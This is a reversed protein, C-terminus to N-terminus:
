REPSVSRFYTGHICSAPCGVHWLCDSHLVTHRADEFMRRWPLTNLICLLYSDLLSFYRHAAANLMTWRLIISLFIVRSTSTSFSYLCLTVKMRVYMRQKHMMVVRSIKSSINRQYVQECYTDNMQLVTYVILISKIREEHLLYMCCLIRLINV